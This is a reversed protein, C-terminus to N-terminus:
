PNTLEGESSGSPMPETSPPQEAPTPEAPQTELMPGPMPPQEVVPTPPPAAEAPKPQLPMRKKPKAKKKASRKARKKMGKKAKRKKALCHCRGITSTRITILRRPFKQARTCKRALRKPSNISDTQRSTFGNVRQEINKSDKSNSLV